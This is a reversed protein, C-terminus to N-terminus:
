EVSDHFFAAIGFFVGGVQDLLDEFGDIIHMTLTNNM